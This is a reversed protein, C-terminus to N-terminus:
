LGCVEAATLGVAPLDAESFGFRALIDALEGSEHLVALERNFAERFDDDGKRFASAGHSVVSKGDIVPQIFDDVREIPANAPVKSLMDNLSGSTMVVADVRGSILLQIVSPQDPAVQIQDEQVGIQKLWGQETTGGMVAVKVAPNAAIDDYSKLDHPNGPAVGLGEGYMIDPNAFDVQVCREPLIAMAASVMDWRGAQLGPILSGFEALVGDMEDIGLRQLVARAVEVSQGTLTGDATAYAYPAENAFGVRVWGQERAKELTTAASAVGGVLALAVILVLSITIPMRAIIKHM